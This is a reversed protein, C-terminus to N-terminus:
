VLRAHQHQARLHEEAKLIAPEELLYVVLEARGLARQLHGREERQQCRDAAEEEDGAPVPDDLLAAVAGPEMPEGPPHHLDDQQRERQRETEIQRDRAVADSARPGSGGTARERHGGRQREPVAGEGNAPPSHGLFRLIRHLISGQLVPDDFHQGFGPHYEGSGLRQETKLEGDHQHLRERLERPLRLEHM